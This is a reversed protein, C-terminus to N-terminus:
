RHGQALEFNFVSDNPALTSDIPISDNLTSLKNVRNYLQLEIDVNCDSM